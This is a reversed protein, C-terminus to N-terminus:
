WGQFEFQYVVSLKPDRSVMLDPLVPAALGYLVGPSAVCLSESKYTAMLPPWRVDL